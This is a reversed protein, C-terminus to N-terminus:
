DSGGPALLASVTLDVFSGLQGNYQIVGKDDLVYCAPSDIVRYTRFLKGSPDSFNKGSTKQAVEMRRLDNSTDRNVGIIQVPKGHYTMEMKKLFDLVELPQEWSTWFVLIVVKGRFSSMNMPQGSSSAGVLDPAVAGKSLKTMRYIEEKALDSVAVGGVKADAANIIAKRILDLRRKNIEPSDGMKSIVGSLALSAEGVVIKDSSKKLVSELFKIKNQILQTAVVSQPNWEGAGALAISFEGLLPSDMHFKETYEILHKVGQASLKPHYNMTWIAYPFTWSEGLSSGVEAVMREGFAQNDPQNKLLREKQTASTASLMQQKWELEALRQEKVIREAGSQSGAIASIVTAALACVIISIQKM